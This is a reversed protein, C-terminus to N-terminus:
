DMNQEVQGLAHPHRQDQGGPHLTQGWSMNAPPILHNGSVQSYQSVKRSQVGSKVSSAQLYITHNYKEIHSYSGVKRQRLWMDGM